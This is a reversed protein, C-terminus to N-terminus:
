IWNTVKPSSSILSGSNTTTALPPSEILTPDRKADDIIVITMAAYNHLDMLTDRLGEDNYLEVGKATVRQMQQLQDSIRMLMGVPGYHMFAKGYESSNQRFVELAEKQVEAMQSSRSPHSM